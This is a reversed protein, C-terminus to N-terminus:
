VVPTIFNINFMVFPAIVIMLWYPFILMPVAPFSARMTRQYFAVSLGIIVFYIGAFLSGWIFGSFGIFPIAGTSVLVLARVDSAGISYIFLYIFTAFTLFMLAVAATIIDKESILLYISPGVLLLSSGNLLRRDVLRLTWDTVLSYVLCVTILGAALTGSLLLALSADKGLGLGVILIAFLGLVISVIGTKRWPIVDYKEQEWDTPFLLPLVGGAVTLLTSITLVLFFSM